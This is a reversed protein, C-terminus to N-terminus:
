ASVQDGTLGYRRQRLSFSELASVLDQRKFDPWCVDSFYIESYSLNWLFFNSLRREGGTRILLDIDKQGSLSMYSSFLDEDIDETSIHNKKVDEAIKKSAQCIDWRGGYNFAINLHMRKFDKTKYELNRIKSVLSSNLCSLDGIFKLKINSKIAENLDENLAKDLLNIIFDVEKKPRSWNETSFAFLTLFEIGEELSYKIIDKVGSFGHKLGYFRSQKSKLGWRGNGDMIIGVHISNSFGLIKNKKALNLKPM